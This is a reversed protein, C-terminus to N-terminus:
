LISFILFLGISGFSYHFNCSLHMAKYCGFHKMTANIDYLYGFFEFQNIDGGMDQCTSQISYFKFCKILSTNYNFLFQKTTGKEMRPEYEQRGRYDIGNASAEAAIKVPRCDKSSTTIEFSEISLYHFPFCIKFYGNYTNAVWYESPDFNFDFAKKIEFTSYHSSEELSITQFYDFDM